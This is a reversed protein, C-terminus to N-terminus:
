VGRVDISAKMTAFTITGLHDFAELCLTVAYTGNSPVISTTDCAGRRAVRSEIEGDSEHGQPERAPDQPVTPSMQM